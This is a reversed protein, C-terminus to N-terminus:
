PRPSDASRAAAARVAEDVVQRLRPDSRHEGAPRALTEAVLSAERQARAGDAHLAAAAPSRWAAVLGDLATRARALDGPDRVGALAAAAEVEAEVSPVPSPHVVLPQDCGSLLAGGALLLLPRLARGRSRQMMTAADDPRSMVPPSGRNGFGLKALGRAHGRM